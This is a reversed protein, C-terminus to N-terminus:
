RARQYRANLEDDLLEELFELHSMKANIAAQHHAELVSTAYGLRLKRLEQDLKLM